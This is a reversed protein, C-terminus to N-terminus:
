SNMGNVIKGLIDEEPFAIKEKAFATSTNIRFYLAFLIVLMPCACGTVKKRLSPEHM